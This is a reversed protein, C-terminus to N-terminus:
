AGGERELRWDAAAEHSVGAFRKLSQYNIWRRGNVLTSQIMGTNIAEYLKTIGIPVLETAQRPSVALPELKDKLPPM